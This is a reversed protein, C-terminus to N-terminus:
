PAWIEFRRSMSTLRGVDPHMALLLIGVPTADVLGASAFVQLDDLGVKARETGPAPVIAVLRAAILPRLIENLTQRVREEQRRRGDMDNNFVLLLPDFSVLGGDVGVLVRLSKGRVGRPRRDFNSQASAAFSVRPSRDFNSQASAAFSVAGFLAVVWLMAVIRELARM